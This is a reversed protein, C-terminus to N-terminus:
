LEKTGLPWAPRNDKGTNDKSSNDKNGNDENDAVGICSQLLATLGAAIATALSSGSQPQGTAPQYWDLNIKHGPLYRSQQILSSKGRETPGQGKM